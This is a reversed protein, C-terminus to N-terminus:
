ETIKLECRGNQFDLILAGNKAIDSGLVGDFFFFGNEGDDRARIKNFVLRQNGLM